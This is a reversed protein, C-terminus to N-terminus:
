RVKWAPRALMQLLLELDERSGGRVAGAGGAAGARSACGATPMPVGQEKLWALAQAHSPM